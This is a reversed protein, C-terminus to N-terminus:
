ALLHRGKSQSTRESGSTPALEPLESPCAPGTRFTPSVAGAPGAKATVEAPGYEEILSREVVALGPERTPDIGKSVFYAVM